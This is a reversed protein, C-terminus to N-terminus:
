TVSRIEPLLGNSSFSLINGKNTEKEPLLLKVALGVAVDQQLHKPDVGSSLNRVVFRVILDITKKFNPNNMGFQILM